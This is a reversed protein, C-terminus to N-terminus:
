SDTFGAESHSGDCFPKNRSHGCRCLSVRNLVGLEQGGKGSIEFGGTLVLPGDDVVLIRTPLAPEDAEAAGEPRHTLAGSPCLEVMEILEARVQEDESTGVMKWVNRRTRACFGAHACISRDDRVEVGTGGLVTAREDYSQEVDAQWSGDFGVERHTSDCFPKNGSEGCRCLWVSDGEASSEVAAGETWGVPHEDEVVPAGRVIRVDGSVILPGGSVMVKPQESMGPLTSADAM